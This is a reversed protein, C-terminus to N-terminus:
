SRLPGLRKTNEAGAEIAPHPVLCMGIRAHAFTEAALVFRHPMRVRGSQRGHFVPEPAGVKAFVAVERTPLVVVWSCDDPPAVPDFARFVADAYLVAIFL